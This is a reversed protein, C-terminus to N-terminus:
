LPLPPDIIRSSCYRSFKNRELFFFFVSGRAAASGPPSYTTPLFATPASPLFYSRETLLGRRDSLSSETTGSLVVKLFFPAGGFDSKMLGRCGFFFPTSLVSYFLKLFFAADLLVMFASQCGIIVSGFFFNAVLLLRRRYRLLFCQSFGTEAFVFLLVWAASRIVSEFPAGNIFSFFSCCGVRM